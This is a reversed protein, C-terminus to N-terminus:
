KMEGDFTSAIFIKSDKVAESADKAVWGLDVSAAGLGIGGLPELDIVKNGPTYYYKLGKATDTFFANSNPYFALTEKTEDYYGYLPNTVSSVGLFETIMINVPMDKGGFNVVDKDSKSIVIKTTDASNTSSLKGSVEYEGIFEEAKPLYTYKIEFAKNTNGFIDYYLGEHVKLTVVDGATGFETLIIIGSFTGPILEVVGITKKPVLNVTTTKSANSFTLTSTGKAEDDVDFVPYDSEFTITNYAAGTEAADFKAKMDIAAGELRILIGKRSLKGGVIAISSNIGGCPNGKLDKFAGAPYSVTYWAGTPVDIPLVVVGGDITAKTVDVDFEDYTDETAGSDYWTYPAYVKFNVKGAGAVVPESFALVMTSDTGEIGEISPAEGDTTLVKAAAVESPVGTTSSSVAYVVYSANPTLEGLEIKKTKAEAYKFLEFALAQEEYGGRYFDLSDIHQVEDAAVVMYGYYNAEGKPTLTIDFGTDTINDVKLEIGESKKVPALGSEAPTPTCSAVMVAMVVSFSFYRLLNKMNDFIIINMTNVFAITKDM